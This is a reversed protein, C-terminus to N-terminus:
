LFADESEGEGGLRCFKQLQSYHAQKSLNSLLKGVLERIARERLSKLKDLKGLYIRNWDKSNLYQIM